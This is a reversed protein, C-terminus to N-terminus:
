PITGPIPPPSAISDHVKAKRGELIGGKITSVVAEKMENRIIRIGNEIEM